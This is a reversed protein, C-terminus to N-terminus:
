ERGGLIPLLAQLRSQWSNTLAFQRGHQRDPPSRLQEVLAAQFQTADRCLRAPHDFAALEDWYTSVVPLGAACYEYLKLPHVHNVLDPHGERDFPIIGVDAHQLYSGVRHQPRPGLVQINPLRAVLRDASLPGILVFQLWPLATACAHLLRFDFWPGFAGVYVAIPGSHAQYEVPRPQSIAFVSPDIGNPIVAVQRAGMNVLPDRLCHAAAVVCDVRSILAQEVAQAGRGFGGFGSNLDAARYVSTRHPMAQLWFPQFASNLFLVDVQEFGRRRLLPMLSPIASLQWHKLVGARDLPFRLDPAVMAYPVYHWVGTEPDHEGGAEHNARRLRLDEDQALLRHLPTLPASVYAVDWGLRAWERAFAHSGVQFPSHWHHIATILVRRRIVDCGPSDFSAM